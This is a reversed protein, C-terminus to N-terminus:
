LTVRMPQVRLALLANTGTYRLRNECQSYMVAPADIGMSSDPQTLTRKRAAPVDLATLSPKVAPASAMSRVGLKASFMTGPLM